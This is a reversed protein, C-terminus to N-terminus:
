GLNNEVKRKEIAIEERQIVILQRLVAILEWDDPHGAADCKTCRASDCGRISGVHSPQGIVTVEAVGGCEPCPAM